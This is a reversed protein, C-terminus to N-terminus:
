LLSQLIEDLRDKPMEGPQRHRVFGRRDMVVTFPLGGFRNGLQKSLEVADLGGILMAYNVAFEDAFEQVLERDDIAIGVFRVDQSRYKDQLEVFGPTEARCPPCWTAWFNVVLVQGSWESHARSRGDLDPLTFEPLTEAPALLGSDNDVDGGALRPNELLAIGAGLGFAVALVALSILLYRRM